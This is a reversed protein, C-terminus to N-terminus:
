SKLTSRPTKGLRGFRRLDTARNRYSSYATTDNSTSQNLQHLICPHRIPDCRQHPQLQTQANMAVVMVASCQRYQVSPTSSRKTVAVARATLRGGMVAPRTSPRHRCIFLRFHLMVSAVGQQRRSFPSEEDRIPLRQFAPFPSITSITRATSTSHYLTM